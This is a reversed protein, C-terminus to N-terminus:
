GGAYHIVDHIENLAGDVVGVAEIRAIGRWEQGDLYVKVQPAPVSVSTRSAGRGWGGGMGYGPMAAPTMPRSREGPALVTATGANVAAMRHDGYKQSSNAQIVWEQPSFRVDRGTTTRAAILDETPGGPGALKGGGSFGRAIMGVNGGTAGGGILNMVVTKVARAALFQNLKAYADSTDATVAVSKDPLTRVSIGLSQLKSMATESLVGVNVEKGPPVGHVADRVRILEAESQTAGPASTKVVAESPIALVSDVYAWAAQENGYFAMATNFLDTRSQALTSHFQGYDGTTRYLALGVDMASAAMADLMQANARGSETTIDLSTSYGEVGEAAKQLTEQVESLSEQYARNADNLSLQGGNLADLARKLADAQDAAAEAAEAYADTNVALDGVVTAGGRAAESIGGFLDVIFASTESAAMSEYMKAFADANESAKGTLIDIGSGVGVYGNSTATQQLDYERLASMTNRLARENGMLAANATDTGIQMEQLAKTLGATELAAKAAERTVDNLKGAQSAFAVGLSEGADAAAAMRREVEASDQMYQSFGAAALGIALTAPNIAGAIGSIAGKFGRASTTARDNALSWGLVSASMKDFAGSVPGRLAAVAAFAVLATQVPGPLSTFLGLVDGGVNVLGTLLQVVDRLPGQAGDGLNTFFSDVAGGLRELDGRLNDNLQAAQRSAYGADNVKATWEAIGKAGQTYLINAARVADSGFITAMAKDREAQTLGRMQTQLQGALSEMGVFAGNADYMNVGLDAMVGAAEKSPNQLHLLMSRFSTGADSGILGASAFAALSGTTEEISLGTASAVLASQNLAMGLDHVSGQAKGAGAALLDAVHSMQTGELRFVNLATAGIEAAAAVEMEGAAALDLAGKLGGGIINATSVGAKAMETIGAAAEVSSFQTAAGMSIASERLRGMDGASAQTAAQVRSMAAGFEM